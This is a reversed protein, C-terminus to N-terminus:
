SKGNIEGTRIENLESYLLISGIYTHVYQYWREDDINLFPEQKFRDM